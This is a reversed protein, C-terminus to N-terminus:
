MQTRHWAISSPRPLDFGIRTHSQEVELITGAVPTGSPSEFCSSGGEEGGSSGNLEEDVIQSPRLLMVADYSEQLAQYSSLLKQHQDWPVSLKALQPLEGIGSDTLTLLQMAHPVAEGGSSDRGGHSGTLSLVGSLISRNRMMALLNLGDSGGDQM